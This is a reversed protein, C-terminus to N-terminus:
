FKAYYGSRKKVKYANKKKLYEIRKELIFPLDQQRNEPINPKLWRYFSGALSFYELLVGCNEQFFQVNVNDEPRRWKKAM